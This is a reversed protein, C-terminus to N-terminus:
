TLFDASALLFDASALLFGASALQETPTQETAWPHDLALFPTSRPSSVLSLQVFPLVFPM